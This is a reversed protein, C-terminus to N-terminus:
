DLPQLSPGRVVPPDGRYDRLIALAQEPSTADIRIIENVGPGREVELYFRQLTATEPSVPM